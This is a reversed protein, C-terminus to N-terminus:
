HSTTDAAVIAPDARHVNNTELDLEIQALASRTGPSLIRTEALTRFNSVTHPCAGTGEFVHVGEDTVVVDGYRLTADRMLAQTTDASAATKDLPSCFRPPKPKVNGTFASAPATAAAIPAGYIPKAHMVIPAPREVPRRAHEVRPKRPAPSRGAWPSVAPAEGGGFLDELFGAQAAGAFAACSALLVFFGVAPRILGQFAFRSSHFRNSGSHRSQM